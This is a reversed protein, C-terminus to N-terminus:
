RGDGSDDGYLVALYQQAIAEPRHRALAHAYSAPQAAIAADMARALEPHDGVPVLGGLRGNLLLERPGSPCDTAVIRTGLAMAELLVNPYGEWRSPLVFLAAGSVLPYPNTVAGVFQIRDDVKLERALASLSPREEGEGVIVLRHTKRLESASYARVLTHHDKQAILRGVSIVYPGPVPHRNAEGVSALRQVREGDVPNHIVRILSPDVALRKLDDAVGSSVTVLANAYGYMRRMLWPTIRSRANRLSVAERLVLRGTRGARNHALTTLLNTGTMSSLVADPGTARLCRVLGPLAAMALSMGGKSDSRLPRYVVEEPLDAILDGDDALTVLEVHHGLLAFQRSLELLVRQAGGLRLDPLVIVISLAPVSLRSRRDIGAL